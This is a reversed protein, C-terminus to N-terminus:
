RRRNEKNGYAAAKMLPIITSSQKLHPAFKKRAQTSACQVSRSHIAMIRAAWWPSIEHREFLAGEGRQFPGTGAGVIQELIQGGVLNAMLGGLGVIVRQPGKAM